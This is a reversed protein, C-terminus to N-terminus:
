AKRKYARVIFLFVFLGLLSGLSGAKSEHSFAVEKISNVRVPVIGDQYLGENDKVVYTILVVAPDDPSPTYVLGNTVVELQGFGDHTHEVVLDDGESDIVEIGNELVPEGTEEDIVPTIGDDEYVPLYQAYFEDDEFVMFVEGDYPTEFGEQDVDYAAGLVDIFVPNVGETEVGRVLELSPPANTHLVNLNIILEQYEGEVGEDWGQAVLTFTYPVDSEDEFGPNWRLAGTTINLDIFDPLTSGAKLHFYQVATSPFISTFADNESISGTIEGFDGAEWYMPVNAVVIEVDFALRDGNTEGADYGSAYVTGRYTGAHVYRSQGSIEGTLRNFKLWSFDTGLGAETNDTDWEIDFFEVAVDVTPSVSLFDFESITQHYDAEVHIPTNTVNITMDITVPTATVDTGNNLAGQEPNATVSFNYSAVDGIGATATFSAKGEFNAFPDDLDYSIGEPLNGGSISYNSIKSQIFQFLIPDNESIDITCKSPDEGCLYAAFAFGRKAQVEPDDSPKFNVRVTVPEAHSLDGTAIDTAFVDLFLFPYNINAGGTLDGEAALTVKGVELDSAVFKDLHLGGFTYNSFLDVAGLDAIELSIKGADFQEEGVSLEIVESSNKVNARISRSRDFGSDDRFLVYPRNRSDLAINVFTPTTAITDGATLVDLPTNLITWDAQIENDVLDETIGMVVLPKDTTSGNEGYSVYPLDDSGVVINLFLPPRIHRGATNLPLINELRVGGNTAYPTKWRPSAGADVVEYPDYTTVTLYNAWSHAAIFLKGSPAVALDLTWVANHVYSGSTRMILPHRQEEDGVENWIAAAEDWKMVRLQMNSADLSTVYESFAYYVEDSTSIALASPFYKQGASMVSTVATYNDGLKQWADDSKSYKLVKTQGYYARGRNGLDPRFTNLAAYINGKSDVELEMDHTNYISGDFSNDGNLKLSTILQWSSIDEVTTLEFIRLNNEATIGLDADGGVEDIYGLYVEGNAGTALLVTKSYQTYTADDTPIGTSGDLLPAVDGITEVLGDAGNDEAASVWRNNVHKLVYIRDDDSSKYASYQVNNRDIIFTQQTASNHSAVGIEATLEANQLLGYTSYNTTLEANNLIIPEAANVYSM